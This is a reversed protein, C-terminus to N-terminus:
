EKPFSDSPLYKAHKGKGLHYPIYSINVELVEFDLVEFLSTIDKQAALSFWLQLQFPNV